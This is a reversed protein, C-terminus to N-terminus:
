AGGGFWTKCHPCLTADCDPCQIDDEDCNSGFELGCKGCEYQPLPPLPREELPM